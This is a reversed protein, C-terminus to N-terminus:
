VKRRGTRQRVVSALESHSLNCQLEMAGLLLSVKEYGIIMVQHIRGITFHKFNSNQDVAFVRVRDDGLWKKFEKKWNNVLSAPTAM